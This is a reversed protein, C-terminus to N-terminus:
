KAADAFQRTSATQKSEFQIEVAGDTSEIQMRVNMVSTSANVTKTRTDFALTGSGKGVATMKMGAPGAGFDLTSVQEIRAIGHEVQLLRNSVAMKGDLTGIGQIPIQVQTNQLVAKDLPLKIPTLSANQAFGIEANTLFQDSLAVDMGKLVLSNPRLRGSDEIIALVSAGKFSLREPLVQEIGDANKMSSTEELFRMEAAFSGDARTDGTILRFSQTRKHTVTLPLLSLRGGSKKIIGRDEIVRLTTISEMALTTLLDRSPQLRPSFELGDEAAFAGCSILCGLVFLTTRLM